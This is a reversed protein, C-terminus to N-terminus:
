RGVLAGFNREELQAADLGSLGRVEDGTLAGCALGLRFYNLLGQGTAADDFIGGQETAQAARELFRRLRRGAEPAGEQFFAYVAAYRAPLQAPHLDWGQYFGETLARTVNVRHIKWAHHIAARNEARQADTLPAPHPATPLLTTAGDSIRVGTGALALQLLGRALTCAPHDPRQHEATIGCAATFDYTGFHVARCRGRAAEVLARPALRGDHQILSEPTEIMLEIGLSEPAWGAAHEISALAGALAQVEREHTVKPLTVVFGEPPAVGAAHLCSFFRDLTRLARGRTEPGLAKCRLGLRPPLSGERLGLAVEGSAAEAHADEEEDRRQGYGDEFDIRFDEVPDRALKRAVRERLAAAGQAQLGMADAFDQATPAHEDLARLALAGLKQRLGRRFLHGGGYVVHVPARGPPPLGAAPPTLGALLRAQESRPLLSPLPDERTM